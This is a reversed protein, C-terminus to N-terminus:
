VGPRFELPASLHDAIPTPVEIGKKPVMPRTITGSLISADENGNFFVLIHPPDQHQGRNRLTNRNIRNPM